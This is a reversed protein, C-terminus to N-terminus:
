EKEEKEAQAKKARREKDAKIKKEKKEKAKEAELRKKEQRAEYDEVEFEGEFDEGKGIAKIVLCYGLENEFVMGEQTRGLFKHNEIELTEEIGKYGLERSENREALQRKEM